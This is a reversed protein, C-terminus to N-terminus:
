NATESTGNKAGKQKNAKKRVAEMKAVRRSSIEKAFAADRAKRAETAAKRRAQFLDYETTAEKASAFVDLMHYCERCIDAIRMDSEALPRGRRREVLLVQCIGTRIAGCMICQDSESSPDPLIIRTEAAKKM